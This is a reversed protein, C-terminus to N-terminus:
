TNSKVIHLKIMDGCQTIYAVYEPITNKLKMTLNIFM